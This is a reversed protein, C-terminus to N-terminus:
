AALCTQLSSVVTTKLASFKFQLFAINSSATALSSSVVLAAFLAASLCLNRALLWQLPLLLVRGFKHGQGRVVSNRGGFIASKQQVCEKKLQLLSEQAISCPCPADHAEHRSMKFHPIEDVLFFSSSVVFNRSAASCARLRGILWWIVIPSFALFLSLPAVILRESLLFRDICKFPACM